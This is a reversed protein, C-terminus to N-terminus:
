KSVREPVQTRTLTRSSGGSEILVKDDRNYFTLSAGQVTGHEADTLTPNGGTLVFKDDAATYVLREGKAQRTPQQLRIDGEAVIYDVQGPGSGLASSPKEGNARAKLYVNASNATMVGDTSRVTVRGDFHVVRQSDDYTLGTSAINVLAPQGGKGQQVLVTNILRGSSQGKPATRAVISRHDRDFDIIEAQVTNAGQWLRADGSYHVMATARQATMSHATVHIPEGGALLAGGPQPKLDSYSTKVSGDATLEGTSRNLLIQRATTTMGGEVVRPSGKLTLVQTEPQYTATQAWAAREGGNPLREHYEFDGRQVVSQVGGAPAFAVDIARSTSVREPEGPVYSVVKADPTGTISSIRNQGSFTAYFKAATIVTPGAPKAAQQTEPSIGVPTLTIRANGSTEAGQVRRNSAFRFDIADTALEFTQGGSGPKPPEIIKVNGEARAKDPANRRGFDVVVMEASGSMANEGVTQFTTGGTLKASQLSNSKGAMYVLATPSQVNLPTAGRTQSTVGGSALVYDVSNEERLFVTLQAATITNNQRELTAGYLMARRPEKTIVGHRALITAAGSGSTLVHVDHDLVLENRKSDYIAGEAWGSAQPIRFEIRESTQAMGTNKNFVLGSTLVHIPNKTELPPSQDPRVLSESDAELEIHVTGQATVDGSNADYQFDTGSIQDFRKSDRGYMVINVDNLAFQNNAYQTAKEARITFLTHGKESKSYSFHEMTGQVKGRLKEPVRGVKSRTEYRAYLYFAAVIVTVAIAAVAFWRRLRPVSIPM